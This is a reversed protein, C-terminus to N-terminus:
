RAASFGRAGSLIVTPAKRAAIREASGGANAELMEHILTTFGVRAQALTVVPARRGLLLLWQTTRSEIPADHPLVLPQTAIPLWLDTPREAIEGRFGHEAVGIITLRQGNVLLQRGVGSEDGFRRHRYDESIVVVPPAGVQDDAPELVRGRWAGVGLVDFYNGSVFRGSPRDLASTADLRVDLRGTAGTAALGTVLHNHDRLDRYLPLSFLDGRPAGGNHADIATPKGIAVLQEPARVPLTRLMLADVLSFIAANAGIGITLTLVATLTFSLDRRLTRLM